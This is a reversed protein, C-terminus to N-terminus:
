VWMFIPMLNFQVVHLQKAKTLASSSIVPTIMWLFSRLCLSLSVSLSLSHTHTHTYTHIHTHEVFALPFYHICIVYICICFFFLALKSHTDIMNGLTGTVCICFFWRKATSAWLIDMLSRTSPFSELWILFARAKSITTQFFPMLHPSFSSSQIAPLFLALALPYSLSLWLSLYFPASLFLLVILLLLRCM